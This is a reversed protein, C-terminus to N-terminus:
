PTPPSTPSGLNGIHTHLNLSIGTNSLYDGTADLKAGNSFDVSGDAKFTNAGSPTTMVISGDPKLEISGKDNSTLVTGDAKIWQQAVTVGDADRAYRRVEGAGAVPESNPDVFGVVAAGGTQPISSTIAYDDPLPQSDDGAPAFNQATINAGAGPDLKVDTQKAENKDIRLFSLIRAIRGM